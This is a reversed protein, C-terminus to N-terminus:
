TRTRRASQDRRAISISGSPGDSAESPRCISCCSSTIAADTTSRTPKPAWPATRGCRRQAPRSARRTSRPASSAGPRVTRPPPGDVARDLEGVASAGRQGPLWEHQDVAVRVRVVHESSQREAVWRREREDIGVRHRRLRCVVEGDAQAVPRGFQELAVRYPQRTRPARDEGIEGVDVAGGDPLPGVDLADRGAQEGHLEADGVGSLEECTASRRASVVGQVWNKVLFKLEEHLPDTSPTTTTPSPPSSAPRATRPATATTTTRTRSRRPARWSHSRCRTAAPRRRRTSRTTPAACPTTSARATPRRRRRRLQRHLGAPREHEPPGAAGAARPRAGRRRGRRRVRGARVRVGRWGLPGDPRGAFSPARRGRLVDEACSRRDRSRAHRQAAQLSRHRGDGLSFAGGGRRMARIRSQFTRRNM